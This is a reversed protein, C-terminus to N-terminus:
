TESREHTDKTQGWDRQILTTFRHRNEKSTFDHWCIKFSDLYKAQKAALVGQLCGMAMFLKRDNAGAQELDAALNGIWSQQITLDNLEGLCDQLVKLDDILPDILEQPFLSRFFELEYRLKKCEIRLRHFESWPSDSELHKGKKRVRKWAEGIWRSVPEAIPEGATAPLRDPPIAAMLFKQWDRFLIKCRKSNIVANLNEHERTRRQELLLFFQELNVRSGAGVKEVERSMTRSFVDLDRTIGSQRGLWGFEQKFRLTVEEPLVGKLQSLGSRTRRISVRFDHLFEDDISEITGQRNALMTAYLSRYLGQLADIAPMAPDLRLDVKSSYDGPTCGISGLIARFWDASSCERFGQWEALFATLQPLQELGDDPSELSLFCGLPHSQRIGPKRCRIRDQFHIRIVAVGRNNVISFWTSRFRAMLLPLIARDGVAQKIDLEAGEEAFAAARVPIAARNLVEPKARGDLYERMVWAASRRSELFLVMGEQFLRWDFTDVYVRRSTQQNELQLSLQLRESITAALDEATVREDTMFFYKSPLM